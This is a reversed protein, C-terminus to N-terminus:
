IQPLTTRHEQVHFLLDICGSISFFDVSRFVLSQSGFHQLLRQRARRVDEPTRQYGWRAILDRCQVIGHRAKESYLGLRMFGGPKVISALIKWGAKPDALHHLSGIAEVLDFSRGISGLEMMDAQAFQINKLGVEQAKRKAFALGALSLDIAFVESTHHRQATTLAHQGTGCGAILIAEPSGSTGTPLSSWPLIERIFATITPSRPIAPLRMWRPYPYQEYQERVVTSVLASTPTLNPIMSRLRREEMPERLQLTLLHDIPDPWHQDLLAEAQDLSFLPFYAGVAAVLIPRAASSCKLIENLKDRLKKARRGEEASLDFVYENIFCQSAIACAFDLKDGLEKGDQEGAGLLSLRFKTLIRELWVDSVPTLRLITQLLRDGTIDSVVKANEIRSRVIPLACPSLISPRAWTEVLARELTAQVTTDSILTPQAQLCAVFLRRFEMRDDLRLASQVLAMAEAANQAALM